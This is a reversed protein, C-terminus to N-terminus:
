QVNGNIQRLVTIYIKLTYTTYKSHKGSRWLLVFHHEQKKRWTRKVVKGRDIIEDNINQQSRGTALYIVDEKLKIYQM